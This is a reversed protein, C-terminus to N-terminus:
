SLPIVTVHTSPWVQAPDGGQEGSPPQGLVAPSGRSAGLPCVHPAPVVSPFPGGVVCGLDVWLDESSGLPLQWSGRPPVLRRSLQCWFLYRSLDVSPLGMCVKSLGSVFPLSGQVSLVLSQLCDTLRIRLGWSRRPPRSPLM